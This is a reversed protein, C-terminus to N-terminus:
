AYRDEERRVFFTDWEMTLAGFYYPYEEGDDLVWAMGAGDNVRFQGALVPKKTFREMVRHIMNMVTWTGRNERDDDYVGFVLTVRVRNTGMSTELEGSNVRVICYPWSPEVCPITDANEGPEWERDPIQQELKPLAQRYATLKREGGDEGKGRIDKLITEVEEALAEQLRIATM